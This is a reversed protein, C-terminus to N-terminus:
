DGEHSCTSANYFSHHRCGCVGCNWHGDVQIPRASIHVHFGCDEAIQKIQKYGNYKIISQTVM